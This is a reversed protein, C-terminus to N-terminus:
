MPPPLVPPPYVRNLIAAVHESVPSQHVRALTYPIMGLAAHCQPLSLLTRLSGKQSGPRVRNYTPRGDTHPETSPSRINEGM